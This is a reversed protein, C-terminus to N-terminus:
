TSAANVIGYLDISSGVRDFLPIENVPAAVIVRTPGVVVHGTWADRWAGPPVYTSRSTVGPRTIPAVLVDDGLLYEDNVDYIGAAKPYNLFLPRLIPLGRTHAVTAYQYLYPKLATHLRAYLGFLRTTEADTWIDVPRSEAGLMDRMTPSLAGLELWRIWLEKEDDLRPGDIFGAIDPGWYPRGSIGASLLAPLVSALGTRPDWSHEQDGTFGGTLYQESGSYGSRAFFVTDGPKAMQGATRTARAYLVSYRNHVMAGSEGSAYVGDLPPEEGFDQMAGDLGDDLLIGSVQKEWWVAAAPNTFDLMAHDHWRDMLPGGHPDGILYGRLRAEDFGATGRYLFPNLYGLVKLGRAHLGQTFAALDPYIGTNIPGYLKWPWGFGVRPDVADYMWVADVPIALAHLRDLQVAVSREGGILNKWVGFGWRPPLPPFGVLQAHRQLVTQPDPGEIILARLEPTTVGILLCNSNSAAIDFTSHDAADLLIGYGRSSLLFPTAVYSTRLEPHVNRDQTWGDLISGRLDPGQFREGLGFFHEDAAVPLAFRGGTISVATIGQAAPSSSIAIAPAGNDRLQM